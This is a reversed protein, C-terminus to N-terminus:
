QSYEYDLHVFCREVDDQAEIAFQLSEGALPSHPSRLLFPPLCAPLALTAAGIDHAERLQMTEDLVVDIEVFLGEGMFYAKVTDV